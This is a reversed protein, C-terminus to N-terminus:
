PESSVKQNRSKMSVNLDGLKESNLRARLMIELSDMGSAPCYRSVNETSLSSIKLPDAGNDRESTAGEQKKSESVLRQSFIALLVTSM